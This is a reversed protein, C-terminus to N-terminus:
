PDVAGRVEAPGDRVVVGDAAGDGAGLADDVQGRLNGKRAAGRLEILHVDFPGAAQQMRARSAPTRSRTNTDEGDTALEPAAM